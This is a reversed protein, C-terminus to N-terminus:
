VTDFQQNNSLTAKSFFFFSLLAQLCDAFMLLSLRIHVSMFEIFSLVYGVILIQNMLRM